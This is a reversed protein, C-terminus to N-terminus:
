QGYILIKESRIGKASEMYTILSCGAIGWFATIFNRNRLLPYIEQGDIGLDESHDREKVNELSFKTTSELSSYLM